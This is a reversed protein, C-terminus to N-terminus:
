DIIEGEAPTRAYAEAPEKVRHILAKEFAEMAVRASKITVLSVRLPLTVRLAHVKPPVNGRVNRWRQHAIGATIDAQASSTLLEFAYLTKTVLRVWAVMHGGNRFRVDAIAGLYNLPEEPDHASM